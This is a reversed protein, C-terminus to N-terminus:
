PFYTYNTEEKSGNKRTWAFAIVVAIGLFTAIMFAEKLPIGYMALYDTFIGDSNADSVYLVSFGKVDGNDTIVDAEIWHEGVSRAPISSLNSSPTLTVSQSGGSDPNTIVVKAFKWRDPVDISLWIRGDKNNASVTAEGAYVIVPISIKNQESEIYVRGDFKGTTDKLLKTNIVLNANTGNTREVNANLSVSENNWEVIVNLKGLKGEIDSGDSNIASAAGISTNPAMAAVHAAMTIFTGASAARGGIPSVYVIVPVESQEIRRVIDRMSSDLGGPTDLEIVAAKANSDEAGGIARDLYREMIPGVVGEAKIVHVAGPEESGSCAMVLGVAVLGVSAFRRM